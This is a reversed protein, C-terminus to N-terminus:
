LPYREAASAPKRAHAFGCAAPVANGKHANYVLRNSTARGFLLETQNAIPLTSVDAQIFQKDRRLSENHICEALRTKETGPEGCILLPLEYQAYM